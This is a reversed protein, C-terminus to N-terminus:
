RVMMASLSRVTASQGNAAPILRRWARLREALQPESQLRDLRGAIIERSFESESSVVFGESISEFGVRKRNLRVVLEVLDDTGACACGLTWVTLTDGPALKRVLRELLRNTQSRVSFVVEGCSAEDFAKLISQVEAPSYVGHVYGAKM